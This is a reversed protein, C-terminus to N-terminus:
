VKQPNELRIDKPDPLQENSMRKNLTYISIGAILISLSIIIIMNTEGGYMEVLEMDMMSGEEDFLVMISAIFNNTFHILISYVINRTRYYVWGSLMGIIMASVFQWPNLHVLGFLVSSIIIASWPSRRKLLGDLIIGRFILEELIPAAIAVTLFGYIDNMQLSLSQLAEKISEPMPISNAIPGSVGWQLAVTSLIALLFVIGNQPILQYRVNGEEKKKLFHFILFPTGMTLIYYILMSSSEGTIDNLYSNIPYFVFMCFVTFASIAASQKTSPYAKNKM